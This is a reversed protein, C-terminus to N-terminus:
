DSLRAKLFGFRRPASESLRIQFARRSALSASFRAKLFALRFSAGESRIRFHFSVSEALVAVGDRGAIRFRSECRKFRIQFAGEDSKLRNQFKSSLNRHTKLAQTHKRDSKLQNELFVM